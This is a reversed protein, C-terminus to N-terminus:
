ARHPLPRVRRPAPGIYQSRPGFLRNNDRQELFHASWGPVRAMAFIATNLRPELGLAHYLRGAPWDINPYLQKEAAMIREIIEATEEWHQLNAAASAAAAYPKLIAARIDGCRCRRHGFGPVRHKRELCQRLWPPAGEPGGAAELVEMVLANAGGHLSGKLSSVAAVVASHVDSLTSATVRAALTSANFEHDGYLILSAQLARVEDPRAEEGRLQYLFNAASGLGPRAPVPDLRHHLRHHAAVVVPIQATLREAKRLNAARSNDEGDPDYHALVSVASRVADMPPTGLPLARLLDVLPWPLSRAAALREQFGKLEAGNPLEGCLLLFAVEEFSTQEVLEAIAYGRYHLDAEGQGEGNIVSIATQGAIVEELGPSYALDVM